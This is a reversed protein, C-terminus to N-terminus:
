SVTGPAPGFPSRGRRAERQGSVYTLDYAVSLLANSLAHARLRHACQAVLVAVQAGVRKATSGVLVARVARMAKNRQQLEDCKAALYGAEPHLSDVLMDYYAYARPTLLWAAKSRASYHLGVAEPVHVFRCGHLHLRLALEDDEARRFREDFGGVSDFLAHSMCNNGTHFQRWTPPYRGELLAATEKRAQHAEWRNWPAPSAWDGPEVFPGFTVIPPGEHASRVAALHLEVFRRVPVVDDDLFILHEADTAAAGANRGAAPGLNQPLRLVRRDLRAYREDQVVPEIPTASADDVVVVCFDPETQTLLADLVRRLVAPRDRTTIVIACRSTPM